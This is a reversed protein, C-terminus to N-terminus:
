RWLLVGIIELIMFILSGIRFLKQASSDKPAWLNTRKTQYRFGKSELAAIKISLNAFTLNILPFVMATLAKSRQILNGDLRVGRTLQADKILQIHSSLQQMLLLPSALLYSIGIPLRSAFLAQVMTITTTYQMWLQAASLIVLLRWWITMAHHYSQSTTANGMWSQLINGHVLIIGLAMPLMIWLIYRIRHRAAKWLILCMVLISALLILTLGLPLLLAQLAVIAWLTLATFPHLTTM